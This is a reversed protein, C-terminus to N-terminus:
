LKQLPVLAALTQLEGLATLSCCDPSFTVARPNKNIYIYISDM